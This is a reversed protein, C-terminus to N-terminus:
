RPAGPWASITCAIPAGFGWYFLTGVMIWSLIYRFTFMIQTYYPIRSHGLLEHRSPCICCGMDLWVNWLPVSIPGVLGREVYSCACQVWLDVNWMSVCMCSGCTWTGCLFVCVPHKPLPRDADLIGRSCIYVIHACRHVGGYFTCNKQAPLNCSSSFFPTQTM